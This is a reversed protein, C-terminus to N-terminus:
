DTRNSRREEPLPPLARLYAMMAQLDAPALRSTSNRIVEDMAGSVADGDPLVGTLLFDKLEGDSWGGLRTPTLNPVWKGDAGRGGALYRDKRPAALFNRPTHCEGCHGLANVLYHGRRLAADAMRDAAVPGPTFYLWKWGTILFRWSYPFRLEHPQNARAAPPLTRLYAWLDRLDEDTIRTFSTYPFAPFYNAGDPRRGHRMARVFDAESWRGIGLEPHPTINTGYFTGYATKIPRGGAYTLAGERDATHCSVCNAATALYAGRQPNGSAGAHTVTAALALVAFVARYLRARRGHPSSSLTRAIVNPLTAASAGNGSHTM